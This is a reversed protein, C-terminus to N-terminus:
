FAAHLGIGVGFGILVGLILFLGCAFGASGFAPAANGQGGRVLPDWSEGFEIREHDDRLLEALDDPTLRAPEIVFRPLPDYTPAARTM